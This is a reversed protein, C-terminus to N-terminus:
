PSPTKLPYEQGIMLILLSFFHIGGFFRRVGEKRLAEGLGLALWELLVM